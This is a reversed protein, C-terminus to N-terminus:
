GQLRNVIDLQTDPRRHTCPRLDDALLHRAEDRGVSRRRTGVM